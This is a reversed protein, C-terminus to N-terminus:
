YYVHRYVEHNKKAEVQFLGHLLFCLTDQNNMIITYVVFLGKEIDNCDFM